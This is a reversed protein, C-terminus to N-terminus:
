FESLYAVITRVSFIMKDTNGAQMHAGNVDLRMDLKQPDSVEDKTLIWPGTPCFNPFSKGKVWQGGREMQWARESVDNVITYGLVHDVTQDETVGLTRKGIVVGLEVEWDLKTM